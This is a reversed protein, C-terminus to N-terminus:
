QHHGHCDYGYRDYGHRDYGHHDYGHNDYGDHDYCKPTPRPTPSPKPTPTPRPKPTPTPRGAPHPKFSVLQLYNYRQSCDGTSSTVVIFKDSIKSPANSGYNGNFVFDGALATPNNCSANPNGWKAGGAVTQGVLEKTFDLDTFSGGFDFIYTQFDDITYIGNGSSAGHVTMTFSIIADTPDSAIGFGGFGGGFDALKCMDITIQGTASACSVFPRGCNDKGKTGANVSNKALCELFKTDGDWVLDFTQICSPTPAPTPTPTPCNNWGWDWAFSTSALMLCSFIGAFFRTKM